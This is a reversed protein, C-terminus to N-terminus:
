MWWWPNRVNKDKLQHQCWGGWGGYLDILQIQVGPPVSIAGLSCYAGDKLPKWNANGLDNVTYYGPKKPGAWNCVGGEILECASKTYSQKHDGYNFMKVLWDRAVIKPWSSAGKVQNESQLEQATSNEEEHAMEMNKRANRIQMM